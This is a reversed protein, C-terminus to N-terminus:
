YLLADQMGGVSTAYSASEAAAEVFGGSEAFRWLAAVGLVVALLAALVIAYEVTAQGSEDDRTGRM